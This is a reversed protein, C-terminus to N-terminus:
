NPRDKRAHWPKKRIGEAELPRCKDPSSAKQKLRKGSNGNRGAPRSLAFSRMEIARLIRSPRTVKQDMRYDANSGMQCAIFTWGTM